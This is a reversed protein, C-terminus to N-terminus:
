DGAATTRDQPRARGRRRPPEEPATKLKEVTTRRPPPAPPAAIAWPEEPRPKVKWIGISVGQPRRKLAARVESLRWRLTAPGLRIPPPLIGSEVWSRLTKKSPPKKGGCEEALQEWDLLQDLPM